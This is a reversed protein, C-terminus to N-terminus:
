YKVGKKYDPMTQPDNDAIRRQIDATAEAWTLPEAAYDFVYPTGFKDAYKEQLADFATEEASKQSPKRDFDIM